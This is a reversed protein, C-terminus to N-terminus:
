FYWDGPDPNNLYGYYLGYYDYFDIAGDANFDANEGTTVPLSGLYQYYLVYYDYIDVDSDGDELTAGDDDGDADGAWLTLDLGTVDAGSVGVGSTMDAVHNVHKLAVDYTGEPIAPIVFGGTITTGTDVTINLDGSYLPEAGPVGPERLQYQLPVSGAQWGPYVLTVAGGISYTMLALSNFANIRGSGLLGAYSPNLDDIDDCGDSILTKIGADTLGPEFAKLLGVLGTVFPAAMSTGSKYGYTHAGTSHGYVTSYISQGPASVDVWTGYNSWSAKVDTDRVGAVDICDGRSGLYNNATSSTNQNGAAVVLLVGNSVAYDAAAALGGSNLSSWSCNVATAGMDTAYIIAEACFDTRVVGVESGGDDESWGVRLPMIQCSWGLGAVGIGNDTIASAIGACHTGHGNFDRPDNDETRGDEGPWVPTLPHLDVWDWGRIDDKYGNGDDDSNNSGNYEAWNTWINGDVYPSDGGLDPHEWDVGTDAVALVVAAGGRGLDWAEPADVDHDSEQFLGWQYVTYPDDPYTECVPLIDVTQAYEVHPNKMFAQIVEDPSFHVPFDVRYVRDLGAQLAKESFARKGRFQPYMARASFRQLVGDIGAIGSRLRGGTETVSPRPCEPRFKVVVTGGVVRRGPPDAAGIPDFVPFSLAALAPVVCLFFVKTKIGRM